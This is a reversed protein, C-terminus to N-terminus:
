VGLMEKIELSRHSKGLEYFTKLKTVLSRAESLAEKSDDKPQLYYEKTEEMKISPSAKIVLYVEGTKQDFVISM